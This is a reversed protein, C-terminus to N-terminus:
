IIISIKGYVYNNQCASHISSSLFRCVFKINGANNVRNIAFLSMNQNSNLKNIARSLYSCLARESYIISFLNTTKWKYSNKNQM